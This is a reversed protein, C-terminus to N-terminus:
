EVILEKCITLTDSIRFGLFYMAPPLLSIDIANDRGLKINFSGCLQSLDNFIELECNYNSHIYIVNTSPNPFISIHDYVTVSVIQTDEPIEGPLGVIDNIKVMWSDSSWSLAGHVSSVDGDSTEARGLFVYENEGSKCISYGDDHMTCGFCQQKKLVGSTDFQLAWSDSYEGTNDHSFTVYGSNNSYTSGIAVITSDSDQIIQSINENKNGGYCKEWIINGLSDIEILLGDGGGQYNSAASDNSDTFGGILFKNSTLPLVSSAADLGSGGFCKVWKLIGLNSFSAVMIDWYGHNAPFGLDNSVTSGVVIIENNIVALDGLTEGKSGGFSKGWKFNGISDICFLWADSSGQNSLVDGNNISSTGGIIFSSDNLRKISSAGDYGSGGYCKTWDIVGYKNLKVVFADSATAGHLGFVDGNNFTGTGGVVIFGSDSTEIIDSGDDDGTGGVCIQWQIANSSDTKVVWMDGHSHHNTIDGDNSDTTGVMVFGKDSTQKLSTTSEAGSGGYTREWIINSAQQSYCVLFLLTNLILLLIFKAKM